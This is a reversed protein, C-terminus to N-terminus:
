QLLTDGQSGDRKEQSVRGATSSMKRYPILAWKISPAQPPLLDTLDYVPPDSNPYAGLEPEWELTRGVSGAKCAKLKSRLNVDVKKM